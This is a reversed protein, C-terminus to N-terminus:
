KNEAEGVDGPGAAAAKNVDIAGIDRQERRETSGGLVM